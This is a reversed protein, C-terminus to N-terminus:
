VGSTRAYKVPLECFGHLRKPLDFKNCMGNKPDWLKLDDFNTDCMNDARVPIGNRFQPRQTWGTVNNFRVLMWDHLRKVTGATADDRIDMFITSKDYFKKIMAM